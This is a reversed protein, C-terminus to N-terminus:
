KYEEYTEPHSHNNEDEGGALRYSIEGSEIGAKNSEGFATDFVKSSPPEHVISLNEIRTQVRRLETDRKRQTLLEREKEGLNRLFNALKSANLTFRKGHQQNRRRLEASALKIEQETCKSFM